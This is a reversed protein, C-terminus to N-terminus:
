PVPTVSTPVARTVAGSVADFKLLRRDEPANGEQSIVVELPNKNLPPAGYTETVLPVDSAELVSGHPPKFMVVVKDVSGNGLKVDQVLVDSTVGQTVLVPQATTADCYDAKASGDNAIARYPMEVTQFYPATKQFIVGYCLTKAEDGSTIQRGTQAKTRQEKLISVMADVGVDLRAKKRATGFSGVALVALLGVIIVVILVEILTFGGKVKLASSNTTVPYEM